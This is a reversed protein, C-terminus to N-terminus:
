TDTISPADARREEVQAAVSVDVSRWWKLLCEVPQGALIHRVPGVPIAVTAVPLACRRSLGETTVTENLICSSWSRLVPRLAAPAPCRARKPLEPQSRLLPAPKAAATWRM